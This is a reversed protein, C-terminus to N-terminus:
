FDAAFISCDARKHSKDNIMMSQKTTTKQVEKTNNGSSHKWYPSGGNRTVNMFCKDDKEEQRLQHRLTKTM